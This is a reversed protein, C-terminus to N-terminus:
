HLATLVCVYKNQAQHKFLVNFLLKSSKETWSEEAWRVQGRQSLLCSVSTSGETCYLSSGYPVRYCETCPKLFVFKATNRFNRLVATSCNWGPYSVCLLALKTRSRQLLCVNMMQPIAGWFGRNEIKAALPDSQLELAQVSWKMM